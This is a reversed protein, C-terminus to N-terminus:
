RFQDLHDTAATGDENYWVSRDLGWGDKYTGKWHLQGNKRYSVWPGNRKGDSISGQEKGTVEGTFPVDTFKKYYLGEREVLDNWHCTESM